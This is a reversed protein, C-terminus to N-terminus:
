KKASQKIGAIPQRIALSDVTRHQKTIFETRVYFRLSKRNLYYFGLVSSSIAM